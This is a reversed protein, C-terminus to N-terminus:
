SVAVDARVCLLPSCWSSMKMMKGEGGGGGDDDGDVDADSAGHASEDVDGFGGGGCAGDYERFSASKEDFHNTLSEWYHRPDKMQDWLEFNKVEIPLATTLHRWLRLLQLRHFIHEVDVVAQQRLHQIQSIWFGCTCWERTRVFKQQGL